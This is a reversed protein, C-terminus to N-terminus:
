DVDIKYYVTLSDGNSLGIATFNTTRTLLRASSASTAIAIEKVTYSGTSAWSHVCYATDNPTDTTLQSATFAAPALSGASIVAKLSSDGIAAESGSTGLQFTDFQSARAGNILGAVQDRGITTVTNSIEQESLLQGKRFHRLTLTGRLSIGGQFKM